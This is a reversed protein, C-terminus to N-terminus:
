DLGVRKLYEPDNLDLGWEVGSEGGKNVTQTGEPQSSSPADIATELQKIVNAQETVKAEKEALRKRLDALTEQVAGDAGADTGMDGTAEEDPQTGSGVNTAQFDADQTVGIEELLRKPTQQKDSDKPLLSEYLSLFNKLLKEMESISKKFANLNSSSMRRGIKTIADLNGNRIAELESDTLGAPLTAETNGETEDGGETAVPETKALEESPEAESAGQEQSEDKNVEPPAPEAEGAAENSAEEGEENPSMKGLIEGLSGHLEKIAAVLDDSGEGEGGEKATRVSNAIDLMQELMGQFQSSLAEKQEAPMALDLKVV